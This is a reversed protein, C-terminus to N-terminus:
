MRCRGILDHTDLTAIHFLPKGSLTYPYSTNVPLKPIGLFHSFKTGEHQPSPVLIYAPLIWELAQKQFEPLLEQFIAAAFHYHFFANLSIFKSINRNM